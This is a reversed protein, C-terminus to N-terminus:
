SHKQIWSFCLDTQIPLSSLEGTYTTQIVLWIKVASFCGETKTKQLPNLDPKPLIKWSQNFIMFDWVSVDRREMRQTSSAAQLKKKTTLFEGDSQRQTVDPFTEFDPSPGPSMSQHVVSKNDLSKINFIINM